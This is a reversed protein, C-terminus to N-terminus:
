AIMHNQLFRIGLVLGERIRRFIYNKRCGLDFQISTLSFLACESLYISLSVSLVISIMKSLWVVKRMIKARLHEMGIVASMIPPSRILIAIIVSITYNDLNKIIIIMINANVHYYYCKRTAAIHYKTIIIVLIM